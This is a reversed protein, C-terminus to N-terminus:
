RHEVAMHIHGFVGLLGIGVLVVAIDEQGRRGFDVALREKLDISVIHLARVARGRALKVLLGHEVHALTADALGICPNQQHIGESGLHAVMDSVLHQVFMDVVHDLTAQTTLQRTALVTHQAAAM